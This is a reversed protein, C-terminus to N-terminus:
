ARGYLAMLHRIKGSLGTEIQDWSIRFRWNNEITGPTNMRAATDLALFDQLPVVALDAVSALVARILPWPMKEECGIYDRVHRKMEASLGSFWSVTTDNDHTGTYAVSNPIHNHPLYPNQANDGFAFQLVKMGPFGYQDRLLLVSETITGLDEAVLPLSGFVRALVKFLANGPVNGWCGDAATAAERPIEWCADFGRFHDVRVVDFLSLQTKLRNQWWLFGDKEMEDWAYLPNGWRQGTASFYDPPVGAVVTPLGVADLRFLERHAWVDASNHAVFFPMDGFLQVGRERAYQRIANWQRYFIFQEFCRWRFENSHEADNLVSLDRDRAMTPWEWWPRLEYRTRLVQYLAYDRLWEWKDRIFEDLASVDGARIFQNYACQLSVLDGLGGLPEPCWGEGYLDVVSILAPSGAHASLGDYPSGSDNPGIPLVQWVSVGSHCLFDVFRRAEPGIQGNLGQGPLSTMHLLVGGKRGQWLLDARCASM